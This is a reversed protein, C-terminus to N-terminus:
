RIRPMSPAMLKNFAGSSSDGRDDHYGVPVHDVQSEDVLGDMETLYADNWDGAVIDVNGFEVQSAFPRWRVVKAQTPRVTSVPFGALEKAMYAIEAKGAQGPDEELVIQTGEPDVAGHQKITDCVKFPTARINKEHAIVFRGNSRRGMLTGSTADPDPNIPSPETAARDWYRVWAVIDSPIASIVKFNERKFLMGKSLSVKWNGEFLTAREYAPLNKLKTLYDPDRDLLAKNDTVKAPIFTFSMPPNGLFAKDDKNESWITKEGIRVFWRLVGSREKIPFGTRPDIFWEILKAVWSAVDPNCSARLYPQVGCTSRLRSIMYWFQRESFHTLEDFSVVAPQSGMWSLVDDDHQMHSLKISSGNPWSWKTDSKHPTGGLMPFLKMTEDWLGGQNMIEPYTRRFIVGQFDAVQPCWRAQDFLLGVTKGGGAAGGYIAVDASCALFDEQPGPQPRFVTINDEPEIQDSLIQDVEDSREASDQGLAANLAVETTLSPSM